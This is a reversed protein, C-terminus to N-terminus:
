KALTEKTFIQYNVGDFEYKDIRKWGAAIMFLDHENAEKESRYSFTEREFIKVELRREIQNAM